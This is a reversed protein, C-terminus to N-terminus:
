PVMVSRLRIVPSEYGGDNQGADGDIGFEKTGVM